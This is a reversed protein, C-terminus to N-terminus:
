MKSCAGHAGLHPIVASYFVDNDNNELIPTWLPKKVFILISKFNSKVIALREHWQKSEGNVPM